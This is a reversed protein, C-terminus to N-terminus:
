GSPIPYFSEVGIFYLCCLNWGSSIFAFVIENPLNPLCVQGTYFNGRVIIRLCKAEGDADTRTHGGAGNFKRLFLRM